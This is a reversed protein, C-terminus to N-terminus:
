VYEVGTEIRYLEKLADLEPNFQELFHKLMEEGVPNGECRKKMTAIEDELHLIAYCLIKTHNIIPKNKAM